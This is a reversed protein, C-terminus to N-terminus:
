DRSEDTREPIRGLETGFEEAVWAGVTGASCTDITVNVHLSDGKSIILSYMEDSMRELHVDVGTLVVEDLVYAPADPTGDCTIRDHPGPKYKGM